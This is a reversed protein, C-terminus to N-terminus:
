KVKGPEIKKISVKTATLLTVFTTRLPGKSEKKYRQLSKTCKKKETYWPQGSERFYYFM